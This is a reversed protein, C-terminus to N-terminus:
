QSAVKTKLDHFIKLHLQIEVLAGNDLQVVLQLDRYGGSDKADMNCKAFRNKVRIIDVMSTLRNFVELAGGFTNCVFSRREYDTVRRLNNKCSLRAKEFLRTNKKQPGIEYHAGVIDKCTGVLKADLTELIGVFESRIFRTCKVKDKGALEDTDPQLFDAGKKEWCFPAKTNEKTRKPLFLIGLSGGDVAEV